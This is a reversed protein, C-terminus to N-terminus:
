RGVGEQREASRDGAPGAGVPPLWIDREDLDSELAKVRRSLARSSRKPLAATELYLHGFRVAVADISYHKEIYGRSARGLRTLDIHGDVCDKLVSYVSQPDANIIPCTDPDIMMDAGRLFCLVPRGLAMAELATYGHFGAIFQDAVLHCSRFLEIVESNPVGQVCVLEIDYGESQLREIAVELFRTGKFHPHNPAHAVRLPGKGRPPLPSSEITDIDIPWYHLNHCDPVYAVMDGMAIKATAVGDLRELSSRLEDKSCICLHGPKPCEMCLNPEGLQLTDDRTRVDAGYAYTYVRKGCRKLLELESVAIGFRGPGIVVGRDYFYHFIDYRLLYYLFVLKRFWLISPGFYNQSFNFAIKEYKELNVDFSNTVYYTNFVVSNSDFGLTRDSRALLPLTLIPTTGWFTRVRGMTMRRMSEFKCIKCYLSLGVHAFPKILRLLSARGGFHLRRASGVLLNRLRGVAGFLRNCLRRALGVLSLRLREQRHSVSARVRRGLLFAFRILNAPLRGIRSFANPTAVDRRDRRVIAQAASGAGDPAASALQGRWKAVQAEINQESLGEVAHLENNIQASFGATEVYLRSLRAAFSLVSYHRLVYERSRQGIDQLMKTDAGALVQLVHEISSPDAEIIPVDQRALIDLDDRLYCVVPISQAMGEVATLGFSGGILQDVLVDLKAMEKLVESNPLGSILVLEVEVGKQQLRQVAKELYDTGKFFRHNPFHGIRLPRTDRVLTRRPKIVDTDVILSYMNYAGPIYDMSLHAGIPVTARKAIETRISRGAEDDCVCHVGVDPCHMCFNYQGQALTARRTRVDAGYVYPYFRKGAAGYLDMEKLPIGFRDSGYGGTPELFGHDSYLNFIDFRLLAWVLTAKRFTEFLDPRKELILQQHASLDLDFSSTTYYTGFVVSAAEVGCQRDASAMEHLGVIPTVGWVSRLSSHRIRKSTMASADIALANWFDEETEPNAFLDFLVDVVTTFQFSPRGARLRFETDLLEYLVHGFRALDFPHCLAEILAEHALGFTNLQSLCEADRWEDQSNNKTKKAM